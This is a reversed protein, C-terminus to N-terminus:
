TEYTHTHTHIHTHTYTHTHTYRRKRYISSFMRCGRFGGLNVFELNFLLWLKFKCRPIGLFSLKQISHIEPISCQWYVGDFSFVWFCLFSFVQVYEMSSHWVYSHSTHLSMFFMHTIVHFVHTSIFFMLTIVQFVHTYHSSYCPHSPMLFILWCSFSSHLSKYPSPIMHTIVQFVHTYHCSFCSSIIHVVHTSM